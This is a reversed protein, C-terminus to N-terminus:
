ISKLVESIKQTVSNVDELIESNTFRLITYGLDKLVYDRDQDKEIAEKSNHIDGDVEIILKKSHCYFDAIYNLLSHQRRFYYNDLQKRRLKDWLLSEAFTPKRRM